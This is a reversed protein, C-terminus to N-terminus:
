NNLTWIEQGWNAKIKYLDINPYYEVIRLTGTEYYDYPETVTRNIKNFLLINQPDNNFIYDENYDKSKFKICESENNNKKTLLFDKFKNIIKQTYVGINMSYPHHIKITSVNFLNISELISLFNIGFKCTDHIYFYINDLENNYLEYLGILATWDISNHNCKIYTINKDININYTDLEYYGGIFIKIDYDEFKQQTKINELIDNLAKNSNKHSNIIIKIKPSKFNIFNLFIHKAEEVNSCTIDTIDNNPYDIDPITHIIDNNYYICITNINKDPDTISPHQGIFNKIWLRKRNDCYVAFYKINTINDINM